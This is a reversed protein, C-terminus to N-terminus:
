TGWMGLGVAGAIIMFIFFLRLRDISEKFLVVGLTTTCIAGIGTWVVYAVGVDLGENMAQSLCFPSVFILILTLITWKINKFNNSKKLALVWAPEMLGGVIIWVYALITIM